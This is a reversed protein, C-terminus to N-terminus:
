HFQVNSVLGIASKKNSWTTNSSVLQRKWDFDWPEVIGEYSQNELGNENVHMLFDSINPNNLANVTGNIGGHYTGSDVGLHASNNGTVTREDIPPVPLFGAPISVNDFSRDPLQRRRSGKELSTKLQLIQEHYGKASLNGNNGMTKLISWCSEVIGYSTESPKIFYAITLVLTASFLYHSDFSSLITILDNVWLRRLLGHAATAAHICAEAL